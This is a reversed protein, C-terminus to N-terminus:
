RIVLMVAAIPRACTSFISQCMWRRMSARGSTGLSGELGNAAKGPLHLLGLRSVHELEEGDHHVAFARLVRSSTIACRADRWISPRGTTYGICVNGGYRSRTLPWLKGTASRMAAWPDVERSGRPEAARVHIVDAFGQGLAQCWRKRGSRVNRRSLHMLHRRLCSSTVPEFPSIPESITACKWSRPQVTWPRSLLM